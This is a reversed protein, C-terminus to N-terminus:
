VHHPLVPLYLLVLRVPSFNTMNQAPATKEAECYGYVADTFFESERM